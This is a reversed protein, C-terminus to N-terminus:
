LEGSQSYSRRQSIESSYGWVRWHLEKLTSNGSVTTNREAFAGHQQKALSSENQASGVCCGSLPWEIVIM